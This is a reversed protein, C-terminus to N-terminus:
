LPTKVVQGSLDLTLADNTFNPSDTLYFTITAYKDIEKKLALGQILANLQTKILSDMAKPLVEKIKAILLNNINGIFWEAIHEIFKCVRVLGVDIKLGSGWDWASTSTASPQGASNATIDVTEVVSLDNLSGSFHGSCHVKTPWVYKKVEFNTTPLNFYLGGLTVSLGKGEVFKITSARIKFGRIKFGKIDYQIPHKGGGIGCSDLYCSMEPIDITNVFAVIEQVLVHLIKSLGQGGISSIIGPGSFGPPNSRVILPADVNDKNSSFSSSSLFGGCSRSQKHFLWKCDYGPCCDSTNSSLWSCMGGPKVCQQSSSVLNVAAVNDDQCTVYQPASPYAKCTSGSCCKHAPDKCGKGVCCFHGSKICPLPPRPRVLACVGTKNHPWNSRVKCYMKVHSIRCTPCCELRPDTNNQCLTAIHSCVPKPAMCVADASSTGGCVLTNCCDENDNCKAGSNVCPKHPPIYIPTIDLGVAVYGKNTTILVNSVSAQPISPLPLGPFLTNFMGAADKLILQIIPDLLTIVVNPLIGVNSSQVVTHLQLISINATLFEGSSKPVSSFNLGLSANWDWVLLNDTNANMYVQADYVSVLAGASTISAKPASTAQVVFELTCNPCINYAKPLLTKFIATTQIKGHITANAPGYKLVGADYYVTGASNLADQNVQLSVDSASLATTALCLLLLLHITHMSREVARNGPSFM